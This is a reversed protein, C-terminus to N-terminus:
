CRVQRWPSISNQFLQSVLERVYSVWLILYETVSPVSSWSQRRAKFWLIFHQKCEKLECVFTQKKSAASVSTIFLKINMICCSDQHKALELVNFISGPDGVNEKIITLV